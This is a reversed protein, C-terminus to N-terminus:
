NRDTALAVFLDVLVILYCCWSGFLLCGVVTVSLEGDFVFKLPSM